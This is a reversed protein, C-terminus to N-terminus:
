PGSLLEILEERTFSKLLGPDTEKVVHDMLNRKKEILAAIKEELTGETVLKFVQVGRKQGIRHVRDTAQDEKAANWWRDYHIVVSAAVLDIGVSGARLSGLYVRCAPDNNFRAIIDGRNRSAGTLIAYETGRSKLYHEMIGLMQLYQSYVVVKQGSDLAEELLEKFLEWKGSAYRDYDKVGKEVLAPHDCIQKLLTLLAFIHIYPITEEHNQLTHILGKGRASTADRYLKVQDDSLRCTRLDEIKEPLDDLVSDKRRRLVFPSILRSLHELQRDGPNAPVKDKVFRKEFDRATGLFGPFTLDLLAKLEMLSNEIPTGTVGLKMQAQISKAADYGITQPNKINQIEDFVALPFSIEKLKEVDRRLIGYSTLLVANKEGAKELDREPSHYLVPNLGPAHDRIKREWHSLVTTPCVVLFPGETGEHERLAVMFAMVEHTKGLGMDDCLLGGFRNEFLFRIWEVGATQYPRLSSRMGKLPPLPSAPKLELLNKLQRVPETDGKLNAPNLLGANLRFLNRRLLKIIGDGKESDEKEANELFSDIDDLGVSACDIWGKETGIYRRGAKKAKLIDALSIDVNGIGYTISLWCWDLDLLQPTIEIRDFAKIIKLSEKKGAFLNSAEFIEEGYEELFKPVQSKRLLMKQPSKFKRELTGPRELEALIAMEPIYVLDGYTYRTLDKRELFAKEGNEQMVQIMPRIDLDLHTDATVKFISKLPIPHIALGHQNPLRKQFLELLRRVKSRPIVMRCFPKGEPEKCMVTFAGSAEEVAPHFTCGSGKRERYCHYLARHWFTKELIQRRTEFGRSNMGRENETLTMLALRALVESRNPVAGRGSPKQCRELFRDSDPGDSLYSFIEEGNLGFVKLSTEKETGVAQIRVSDLTEKCNEGLIQAFDNWISARFDDDFNKEKLTKKWRKYIKTLALSHKCTRKRSIACSCFRQMVGDKQGEVLFAIGPYPDSAEPALAVAHRYFEIRETRSETNQEDNM